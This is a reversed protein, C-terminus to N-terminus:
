ASCNSLTVISQFFKCINKSARADHMKLDVVRINKILPIIDRSLYKQLSIIIFLYKRYMRQHNKGNKNRLQDFLWVWLKLKGKKFNSLLKTFGELLGSWVEFVGFRRNQCQFHMCFAALSETFYYRFGSTVLLNKCMKESALSLHASFFMSWGCLFSNQTLM